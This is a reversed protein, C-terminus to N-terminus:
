SVLIESKLDELEIEKIYEVLAYRIQNRIIRLDQPSSIGSREMNEYRAIRGQQLLISDALYADEALIDEFFTCTGELDDARIFTHLARKVAKLSDFKKPIGNLVDPKARDTQSLMPDTQATINRFQYNIRPPLEHNPLLQYGKKRFIFEGGMHGQIPLPESRPIPNNGVAVARILDRGLDGISMLQDPNNKLFSILNAAFPSHTGVAGDPVVENRGSTLLHRSPIRDLRELIAEEPKIDRVGFMAGAYCADAMVLTHFSKIAEIQTKLFSFPINSEWNNEEGDVPIWFGQNWTNNYQGHGAFYILLSDNAKVKHALEGLTDYINRKTAEENSLPICDETEFQYKELLLQQITSADRQANNLQRVHQYQDIGITLLYNKGNPLTAEFQNGGPLVLGRTDM